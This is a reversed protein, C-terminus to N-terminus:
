AKLLKQAFRHLESNALAMIKKKIVRSFYERETKSLKEGELKKLFIEKQRSSFIQSMAYELTLEEKKSILNKMESEKKRFYDNFIKRIREPHLRKNSIKIDSNDEFKKLFINIKNKDNTKLEKYLKDAWSFGLNLFKYLSLSLLVLDHFNAFDKTRKLFKSVGEYNFIEKDSCNALLLPFGEYLRIDESEVVEALIKHTNLIKEVELLPYGLKSIKEYINKNEM